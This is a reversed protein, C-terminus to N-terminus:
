ADFQASRSAMSHHSWRETDPRYIVGIITGTHLHEEGLYAEVIGDECRRALCRRQLSPSRALVQERVALRAKNVVRLSHFGREGIWLDRKAPNPSSGM